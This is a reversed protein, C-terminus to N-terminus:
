HHEGWTALFETDKKPLLNRKKLESFFFFCWIGGVGVIAAIAMPVHLVQHDHPYAPVIWWIVDGAVITLLMWAMWKMKKPDTKVERFLFLVFPLFWHVFMLLYALYIWGGEFRKKYFTIEEPMNGAWILMFQSFSGYAWIMCFGFSLSGIDIRFKHKIISLATGNTGILTYFVLASFMMCTLFMDMAAIVPFMTSAWAPEISMVYYTNYITFTVAWIIIGPGALYRLKVWSSRDGEDESKLGWRNLCGNVVYYLAFIIASIAIFHNKNLFNAQRYQTEHEISTSSNMGELSSTPNVWWFPSEEGFFLSAYVPAGLLVMIPLTRTCAQFMRRFVLGWSASTMYAILLLTMSGIPLAMWFVFGTLYTLFFDRTGGHQGSEYSGMNIFGLVLWAGLGILGALLAKARLAGVDAPIAPAEYDHHHSEAM